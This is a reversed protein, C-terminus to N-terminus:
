QSCNGGRRFQQYLNRVLEKTPLIERVPQNIKWM